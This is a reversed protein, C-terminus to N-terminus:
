ARRLRPIFRTRSRADSAARMAALMRPLIVAGAGVLVSWGIFGRAVERNKGNWGGDVREESAPAPEFLIGDTVPTGRRPSLHTKEVQAAMQAEIVQPSRRHQRAMARGARGFVLEPRPNEALDVIARAAMDASYVPPMALVDRGTYNAAHRFIPTDITSPMVTAVHIKKAHALKLESRLSAGLSRIAAKSMGYATTYPQPVEGVVSSVNIIVGEGQETMVELAARSGYVCGMVNVDLVRRFDELLVDLFSAFITTGANNVWVDIRDFAEVAAAALAQVDTFDAVDTPVAIARAGLDECEQVLSTLAEDNRSAIVLSAGKKAFRLVTARGIGSSAGTIVVVPNKMKSM